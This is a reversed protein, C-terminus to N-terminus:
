CAAHEAVSAESGESIRNQFLRMALSFCTDGSHGATSPKAPAQIGIRVIMTVLEAFSNTGMKEMVRGRHVKITKEVTGLDAAIQKNIQGSILRCLVDRERSTLTSLRRRIEAIEARENQELHSRNLAQAIIELLEEDNFPKLLFDVAGAKM